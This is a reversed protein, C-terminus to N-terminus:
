ELVLSSKHFLTKCGIQNISPLSWLISTLQAMAAIQHPVPPRTGAGLKKGRPSLNHKTKPSGINKVKAGSDKLLCRKPHQMVISIPCFFTHNGLKLM